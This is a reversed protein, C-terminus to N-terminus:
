FLKDVKLEWRREMVAPLGASEREKHGESYSASLKLKQFDAGVAAINVHQLANSSLFTVIESRIKGYLYKTPFYAASFHGYLIDGRGDSAQGAKAYGVEESFEAIRRIIGNVTFIRYAMKESFNYSTSPGGSINGLLSLGISRNPEYSYEAKSHWSVKNDSGGSAQNSLYDFIVTESSGTNDGVDIMSSWSLSHSEKTYDLSHELSSQKNMGGADSIFNFSARLYNRLQRYQHDLNLSFIGSTIRDDGSSDDATGGDGTGLQLQGTMTSIQFPVKGRGSGAGTALKGDVGIRLARSVDKDVRGYIEHQMFGDNEGLLADNTRTVTLNYGGLWTLTKRLQRNNLAEIGVRMALGDLTRSQQRSEVELRPVFIVRQSRQLELQVDLYCDRNSLPAVAIDTSSLALGEFSSQQQAEYIVRSRLQTDRDINLTLMIPLEAHQDIYLENTERRLQSLITTSVNQRQGHALMNLLYTREDKQAKATAESVNYSLDGSIKMWNTLNIWQRALVHDITGIIVQSQKTNNDADLFDVHDNMRLHVWNDKKNLSVFALDRDRYHQKNFHNSLDRVQIQKYDILLRPLQSLVDRYAGLYSGNRIGLLLTAGFERHTGNRLSTFIGPELLSAYSRGQGQLGVPLSNQFGDSVLVTHHQDRAFATLRFPLGGPALLFSAEYLPKKATIRQFDPDQVGNNSVSPDLVNFEYGLMLSYKGARADGLVGAKQYRLDVQQYIVSAKQVEDGDVKASYEAMGLSIEGSVQGDRAYAGGPWLGCLLLTLMFIAPRLPMSRRLLLKLPVTRLLADLINAIEVGIEM